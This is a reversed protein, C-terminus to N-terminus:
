SDGLFYGRYKRGGIGSTAQLEEMATVVSWRQRIHSHTEAPWRGAGPLLTTHAPEAPRLYSPHLDCGMGPSVECVRGDRSVVLGESPKPLVLRIKLTTLLDLM